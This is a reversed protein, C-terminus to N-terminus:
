TTEKAFDPHKPNPMAARFMGFRCRQMLDHLPRSAVFSPHVSRGNEIVYESAEVRKILGSITLKRGPLYKRPRM